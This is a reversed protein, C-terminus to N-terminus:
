EPVARVFFGRAEDDWASIRQASQQITKVPGHVVPVVESLLHVTHDTVLCGKLDLVQLPVGQEVRNMLADCLLLTRRADLEGGVLVLTTLSPLLPNGRVGNDELFMEMFGRAASRSLFLYQLLPWRQAHHLWVQKEFRDTYNQSTLSVLNELPLAALTADLVAARTATSWNQARFSFTLPAPYMDDLFAIQRPSGVIKTSIGDSRVVVKQTNQFERVHQSLYPLIEQVDSGDQLHSITAIWLRTLAPLILHALALVCDRASASFLLVSLFPLTITRKIGSPPLAPLAIPSAEHLRLTQLQPMADLADLWVSLSPRGSASPLYIELCKLGKLLPSRWSIDCARLKLYSLSPTTGDFLTDPVSVGSSAESDRDPLTECVLSLYELIPAPSVLGEVVNSFRSFDASIDLHSIHSAHMRIEKQFADFRANNWHSLVRAKLHLPVMRARALIEAAGAPSFNNFHLHNWFLPQNLAIERWRHCVHSLHFWSLNDSDRNEILTPITLSSPAVSERLISFITSIVETPLSSIPALANRRHKLSRILEELSKIEADISLQLYEWSNTQWSDM